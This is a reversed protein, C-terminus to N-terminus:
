KEPKHVDKDKTVNNLKDMLRQLGKKSNAVIAKDDSPTLKLWRTM